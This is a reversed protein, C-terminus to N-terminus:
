LSVEWGIGHRIDMWMSLRYGADGLQQAIKEDTTVVRSYATFVAEALYERPAGPPLELGRSLILTEPEAWLVNHQMGYRVPSTVEMLRAISEPSQDLVPITTPYSTFAYEEALERQRVTMWGNGRLVPEARAEGVEAPLHSSQGAGSPLAAITTIGKM